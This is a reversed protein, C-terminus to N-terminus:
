DFPFRSARSLDFTEHVTHIVIPHLTTRVSQRDTGLPPVLFFFDVLPSRIEGVNLPNWPSSREGGRGATVYEFSQRRGYVGETTEKRNLVGVVEWESVNVIVIITLGGIRRSSSRKKNLLQGNRRSSIWFLFILILYM